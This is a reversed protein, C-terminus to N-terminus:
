QRREGATLGGAFAPALSADPASVTVTPPRAPLETNRAMWCDILIATQRLREGLPSRFRVTSRNSQGISRRMNAEGSRPGTTRSIGNSWAPTHFRSRADEIDANTEYDLFVVTRGAGLRRLDDLERQLRQDLAWRYSPLYIARRAELYPLLRAGHLGERHGLCTGLRRETRKLGQMTTIALKSPDVDERAFVKLAQWIGEVSASVRGPTFPVPVGHVPYFPSFHVWAQEGKSTLDLILPDAYRSQLTKLSIQKHAVVYPM